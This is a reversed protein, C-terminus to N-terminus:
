RRCFLEYIRFLFDWVENVTLLYYRAATQRSPKGIFIGIDNTNLVKLADEDTEDDGLYISCTNKAEQFNETIGKLATGKSRDSITRIEIVKKGYGVNFPEPVAAKISEIFRLIEQEIGAKALRYHIALTPGKNEFLIGNCQAFQANLLGQIKLITEKHVSTYFRKVPQHPYQIELGHNGAYGIGDIGVLQCIDDILRGTIIWLQIEPYKSLKYLLQKQEPPLLAEKPTDVIPVLSGDYDLFLFLNSCQQLQNSIGKWADFLHIVTLTNLTTKRNRIRNKGDM